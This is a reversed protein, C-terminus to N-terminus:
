KARREFLMVGFSQDKKTYPLALQGAVFRVQKVGALQELFRKEVAMEAQPCMKRTTGAPGIEIDGPSDGAKVSAFYNNCGAGGVLRNGDLKLTVEPTAAAPEDWAWSRLVWETGGITEISLRGTTAPAAEKLAGGAFEWTRTVLDGPCCGADKEGGQVVDLVIRTGDLRGDRLQVRDGVPATAINEIGTAARRVVALYSTEGTGGTAGALLVVAEERGDGDLDGALRFDRVFTVSPRSAGGPEYPTGEWAGATLTFPGGAEEVGTYTANQLEKLTPASPDVPAPAAVTPAAEGKKAEPPPSQCALAGAAVLGVVAVRLVKLVAIM